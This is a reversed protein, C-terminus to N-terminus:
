TTDKGRGAEGIGWQAKMDEIRDRLVAAKEFELRAAAAEMELELMIMLDHPSLDQELIKAWPKEDAITESTSQEGAATTAQMIEEV